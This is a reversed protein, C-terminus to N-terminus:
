GVLFFCLCSSSGQSVGPLWSEKEEPIWPPHMGRDRPRFGKPCSVDDRNGLGRGRKGSCQRVPDLWVLGAEQFRPGPRPVTLGGASVGAASQHM